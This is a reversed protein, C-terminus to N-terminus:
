LWSDLGVSVTFQNAVSCIELGGYLTLAFAVQLVDIYSDPLMAMILDM